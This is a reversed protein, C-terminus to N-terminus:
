SRASASRRRLLGVGLAASLLIVLTSPEPVPQASSDWGIAEEMIFEPSSTTYPEDQGTTNYANQILQGAGTGQPSFDGYDGGSNQNFDVISTAGGDISFYSSASSSTTFSPVGKASYRYLDLAGYLSCFPNSQREQSTSCYNSIYNLWSGGGGGGMVEDLEHELGGTLDYQSSSATGSFAFNYSSDINITANSNSAPGLGLMAMQGGTLVMDAAGNADNGQSLNAIATALVTNQPNAESDATLAGVYSSYSETYMSQTTSLLDGGTSTYTFDVTLTVPNDYLNDITDVAADISGEIEAADSSDTISTGFVPDIALAYAPTVRAPLVFGAALLLLLTVGRGPLPGAKGTGSSASGSPQAGPDPNTEPTRMRMAYPRMAALITMRWGM